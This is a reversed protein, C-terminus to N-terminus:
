WDVLLYQWYQAYAVSWCASWDCLMSSLETSLLWLYTSGDGLKRTQLKWQAVAHLAFHVTYGHSLPRNFAHITVFCFFSIVVNMYWMFSCENQNESWFFPQLYAVGEVLFKPAFQSTSRSRRNVILIREYHRLWLVYRFM